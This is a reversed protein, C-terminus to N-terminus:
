SSALTRVAEDADALLPPGHGFLAQSFNREALKAISAAAVDVDATFRPNAGTVGGEIGNLADGTVLIGASADLVSIHGPTHGPTEIVELGFVRDGDGVGRLERPSSIAALDGAGAWGQAQTAAALVAPLSGAHDSHRHTVIVDSVASWGLGMAELVAAIESESGPVGTDVIAAEGSRVLVWASVSALAVQGFQLGDAVTSLDSSPDSSPAGGDQDRASCAVSTFGLVAVGFSARGLNTVFSRRTLRDM